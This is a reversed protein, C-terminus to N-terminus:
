LGARVGHAPPPQLRGALLALWAWGRAAARNATRENVASRRRGLHTCGQVAAGSARVKLKDWASRAGLAPKVVQTGRVTLDKFRIEVTADPM